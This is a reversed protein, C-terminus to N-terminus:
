SYDASGRHYRDLEGNEYPFNHKPHPGIRFGLPFQSQNALNFLHHSFYEAPIAPEPNDAVGTMKWQRELNANVRQNLATNAL